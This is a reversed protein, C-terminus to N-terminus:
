MIKNKTDYSAPWLVIKKNLNLICNFAKFSRKLYYM